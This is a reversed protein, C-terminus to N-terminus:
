REVERRAAKIQELIDLAFAEIEALHGRFQFEGVGAYSDTEGIGLHYVGPRDTASIEAILTM